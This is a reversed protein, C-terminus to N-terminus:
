RPRSRSCATRPPDVRYFDCYARLMPMLDALDAKGVTDISLLM